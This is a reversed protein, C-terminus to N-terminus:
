QNSPSSCLPRSAREESVIERIAQVAAEDITELTQIQHKVHRLVVREVAVTTAAIAGRGCIATLFGLAFGGFGCFHYSRCHRVGRRQLEARFISRHRREHSQFEALQGLLERATLRAVFLQGAYISVAGHEGAHNVQLVRDGAGVERRAHSILEM